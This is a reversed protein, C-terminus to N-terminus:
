AEISAAVPVANETRREHLTKISLGLANKCKPCELVYDAKGASTLPKLESQNRLKADSVDLLRSGCYPCRMKPMNRRGDDTQNSKKIM